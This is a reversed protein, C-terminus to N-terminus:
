SGTRRSWARGAVAALLLPYFGAALGPSGDRLSAVAPPLGAVAVLALVLALLVLELVRERGSPDQEQPEPAPGEPRVAGGADAGRKV